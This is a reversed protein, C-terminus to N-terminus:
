ARTTKSTTSRFNATNPAPRSCSRRPRPSRPRGGAEGRPRGRRGARALAGQLPHRHPRHVQAGPHDRPQDTRHRQDRGPLRPLERDAALDRGPRRARQERGGAHGAGGLRRLGGRRARGPRRRRDAPRGRRAAGARPRHRAGALARRQEAAAPRRRGAAAGAPDGGAGPRRGAGGGRADEGPDRWSYPLRQRKAYEVLDAPRTTGPRGSSRSGSARAGAAATGAAPRLGLAATDSLVRGRLAPRAANRPRGRRIADARHRGRHPLGDARLAPEDRRPVRPRRPPRDGRRGPRLIAAEGELIAIFPYTEDGIEFLVDGVAATREEGHEALM